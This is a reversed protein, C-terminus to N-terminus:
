ILGRHLFQVKQSCSSRQGRPLALVAAAHSDSIHTDIQIPHHGGWSDPCPLSLPRSLPLLFELTCLTGHALNATTLSGPCSAQWVGRERQADMEAKSTVTSPLM